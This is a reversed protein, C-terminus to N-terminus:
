FVLLFKAVDIPSGGLWRRPVGSTITALYCQWSNELYQVRLMNPDHYKGKLTM